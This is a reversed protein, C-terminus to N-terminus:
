VFDLEVAGGEIGQQAGGGLDFNAGEFADVGAHIRQHVGCGMFRRGVDAGEDIRGHAKRVADGLHAQHDETLIGLDELLVAEIRDPVPLRNGGFGAPPAAKKVAAVDEGTINGATGVNFIGYGAQRGVLDFPIFHM